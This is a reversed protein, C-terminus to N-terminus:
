ASRAWLPVLIPPSMSLGLPRQLIQLPPPSPIPCHPLLGQLNPCLTNGGFNDARKEFEARRNSFCSLSYVKFRMCATSKHGLSLVIATPNVIREINSITNCYTRQGEVRYGKWPRGVTCDKSHEEAVSRIFDTVGAVIVCRCVQPFPATNSTAVHLLDAASVLVKKM